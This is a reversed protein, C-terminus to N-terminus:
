EDRGGVVKLHGHGFEGRSAIQEPEKRSDSWARFDAALYGAGLALLGLAVFFIILDTASM